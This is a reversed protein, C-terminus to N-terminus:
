QLQIEVARFASRNNPVDQAHIEQIIKWNGSKPLSPKGETAWDDVYWITGGNNKAFETIDKVKRYDNDRLPDYSGWTLNDAAVFYVPNRATDYYHSEYFRWITAALIAQNPSAKQKVIELTPKIPLLDHSSKNYNGIQYVYVIGSIMALVIIGSVISSLRKLSKVRYSSALIVAYLSIWFPVSPLLYRDVFASRLPPMSILLLIALPTLSMTLLFKFSKKHSQSLQPYTRLALFVGAGVIFMGILAPWGATEGNERYMVLDMFFNFPTSITVPGIWFGGGQVGAMQRIMWPLWPMFLLLAVIHAFIWDRSFFKRITQRWNNSRVLGFRWVWHAIWMIATFYHTWMGLALLTGYVFWKKRSPKDIALILVYSAAAVIASAVGYMRAEESYRVLLPTASMLVLSWTATRTGFLKKVILYVFIIAILMGVLSLSRIAIESDGFIGQWSKLLWYYLPPHVDKATLATLEAYSFRTIYIGYAEDFWVSWRSMNGISAIIFFVLSVVVTIADPKNNRYAQQLNILYKM